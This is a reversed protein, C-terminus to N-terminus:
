RMPVDAHLIRLNKKADTNEPDLKLVQLFEDIADKRRGLKAYAVGLNNLARWSPPNFLAIATQYEDISKEYEGTHYLANALNYHFEARNPDRAIARSLFAIAQQSKGSADLAKGAIGNGIASGTDIQLTRSVLTEDNNWVPLQRMTLFGLGVILAVAVIPALWRTLVTLIVGGALAPGLMGLYLFHDAVTSYQQFEFPVFGLVPLLGTLLILTGLTVGRINKWSLGLVLCLMVIVALNNMWLHGALIRAPTRGYDITLGAPWFIKGIYFALADMAVLPRDVLREGPAQQSTHAIWAFIGAAIFWPLIARIAQRPSTRMFGLDLIIAIIPVVVATAKSFLALVFVVFALGYFWWRRNTQSTRFALYLRIAGLSFAAALLNNMEAVWAVSEVQVPHMAFIAAGGFAAAPSKLCTMLISFVLAVGVLHLAINLWHFAGPDNATAGAKSLAWWATYSMPAYMEMHPGSWIQGLHRATPPFLLPNQVVENTDDWNVFQFYRAPLFITGTWALLIAGLIFIAARRNM